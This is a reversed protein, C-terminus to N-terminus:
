HETELFAYEGCGGGSQKRDNRGELGRGEM